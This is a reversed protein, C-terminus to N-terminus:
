PASIKASASTVKTGENEVQSGLRNMTTFYPALALWGALWGALRGPCGASVLWLRLLCM